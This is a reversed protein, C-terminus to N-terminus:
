GKQQMGEIKLLRTQAPPHTAYLVESLSLQREETSVVAFRELFSVLERGYGLEVAYRDARFESHRSVAAMVAQYITLVIYQLGTFYGKILANSGKFMFISFIGRCIGLVCFLTFLLWISAISVFAIVSLSSLILTVNAFVLRNWVADLNLTHAIEHSLVACLMGDDCCNLAGQTIGINRIGYAHANIEDSPIIWLRLKSLNVESKKTANNAIYHLLEELRIRTNDGLKDPHIARHKYLAIYEGMLAYSVIGVLCLVAYKSDLLQFLLFYDVVLTIAIKLLAQMRM